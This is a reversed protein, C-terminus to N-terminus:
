GCVHLTISICHGKCVEPQDSSFMFICNVFVSHQTAIWRLDSQPFISTMWLEEVCSLEDVDVLAVVKIPEKLLYPVKGRKEEGRRKETEM